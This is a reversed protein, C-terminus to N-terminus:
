QDQLHKDLAELGSFDDEEPTLEWKGSPAEAANGAGLLGGLGSSLDGLDFDGLNLKELGGMLEGTFADGIQKIAGDLLGELDGLEGLGSLGELDGLIELTSIAMEAMKLAQELDGMLDKGDGGLLNLLGGISDLDGGDLGTTADWLDGIGDMIRETTTPPPPEPKTQHQIFEAIGWVSIATLASVLVIVWLPRQKTPTEPIPTPESM